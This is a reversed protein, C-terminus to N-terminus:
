HIFYAKFRRCCDTRSPRSLVSILIAHIPLTGDDSFLLFSPLLYSIYSMSHNIKRCKKSFWGDEAQPFPTLVYLSLTISVQYVIEYLCGDRGSMFIRGLPTGVVSIMSVNDSPLSFLPEPILHM